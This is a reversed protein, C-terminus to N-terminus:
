SKQCLLTNKFGQVRQEIWAKRKSLVYEIEEASADKPVSLVVELSPKVKLIMNKIDKYVIKVEQM